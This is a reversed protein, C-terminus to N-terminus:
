TQFHNNRCKWKTLPGMGHASTPKQTQFQCNKMIAVQNKRERELQAFIKQTTGGSKKMLRAKARESLTM